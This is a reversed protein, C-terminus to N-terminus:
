IKEVKLDCVEGMGNQRMCEQSERITKQKLEEPIVIGDGTVDIGYWTMYEEEISPADPRNEMQYLDGNEGTGTNNRKMPYWNDPDSFIASDCIRFASRRKIIQNILWSGRERFFLDSAYLGIAYEFLAVIIKKRSPRKECAKFEELIELLAAVSPDKCSNRLWRPDTSFNLTQLSFILDKGAKMKNIANIMKAKAIVHFNYHSEDVVKGLMEPVINVMKRRQSTRIQIM